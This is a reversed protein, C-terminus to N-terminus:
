GDASNLAFVAFIRNREYILDSDKNNTIRYIQKYEDQTM